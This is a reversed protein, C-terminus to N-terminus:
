FLSRQLAALKERHKAERERMQQQIAEQAEASTEQSLAERLRQMDAEFEQTVSAIASKTGDVHTQNM